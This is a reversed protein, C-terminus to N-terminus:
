GQSRITGCWRRTADLTAVLSDRPLKKVIPEIAWGLGKPVDRTLSIARCEVWVGDERQEFRWFSSLRWLFGYGTDPPRVNETPEGADEVEAVRTTHSRCRWRTSSVASYEVYHDTDLVVTVIRKKRLRLYIEFIDGSRNVLKSAIVEPRYIESHRDYSQVVALANEITAAPIRTAGIWDHILGEPIHVPRGGTLLEAVTRGKRVLETREASADLWLFPGDPRWSLSLDNDVARIYREYAAM